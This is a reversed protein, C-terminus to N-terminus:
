LFTTLTTKEKWSQFFPLKVYTPTSVVSFIVSVLFGILFFIQNPIRIQIQIWCLVTLCDFFYLFLYFIIVVKQSNISVILFALNQLFYKFSHQIRDPHPEPNCVSGIVNQPPDPDASRHRQSISGSGSESGPDPDPDPDQIRIRSNEDNVKLHQCFFLKNVCNKRSIVNQLQM